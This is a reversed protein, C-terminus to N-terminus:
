KQREASVFDADINISSKLRDVSQLFQSIKLYEESMANAQFLCSKLPTNLPSGTHKCGCAVTGCGFWCEERVIVMGRGM